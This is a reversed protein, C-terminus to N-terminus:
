AFLEGASVGLIRASEAVVEFPVHKNIGQEATRYESETITVGRAELKEAMQFYELGQSQRANAIVTMANATHRPQPSHQIRVSNLVVYAADLMGNRVHEIAKGPYGECAKYDSATISYGAKTMARVFRSIATGKNRRDTRLVRMYDTATVDPITKRDTGEPIPNTYYTM